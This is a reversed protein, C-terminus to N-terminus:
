VGLPNEPPRKAASSSLLLFLPSPLRLSRECVEKKRNLWQYCLLIVIDPTIVLFVRDDGPATQCNRRIILQTVGRRQFTLEPRLNSRDTHIWCPADSSNYDVAICPAYSACFTQCDALSNYQGYNYGYASHQNDFVTWSVCETSSLWCNTRILSCLRSM